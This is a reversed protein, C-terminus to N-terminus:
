THPFATGYSCRERARIRIALGSGGARGQCAALSFLSSACASSTAQPAAASPATMRTTSALAPTEGSAAECCLCRV